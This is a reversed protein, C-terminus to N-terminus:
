TWYALSFYPSVAKQLTLVSFHTILIFYVSTVAAMLTLYPLDVDFRSVFFYYQHSFFRYLLVGFRYKKIFVSLSKM